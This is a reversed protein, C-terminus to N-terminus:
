KFLGDVFEAGRRWARDAASGAILERTSEALPKSTQGKNAELYTRDLQTGKLEQFSVENRTAWQAAIMEEGRERQEGNWEEPTGIQRYVSQQAESLNGVLESQFRTSIFDERTSFGATVQERTNAGASVGPGGVGPRGLGLAGGVSVDTISASDRSASGTYGEAALRSTYAGAIAVVERQDLRGTLDGVISSLTTEALGPRMSNPDTIQLSESYVQENGRREVDGVQTDDGIRTRRGETQSTVNGTAVSSVFDAQAADARGTAPDITMRLFGQGGERLEALERPGMAGSREMFDALTARNQDTVALGVQGSQYEAMDLRQQVDRPNLGLQEALRSGINARALNETEQNIAVAETTARINGPNLSEIADGRALHQSRAVEEATVLPQVGDGFADVARLTGEAQAGRFLGEAQGARTGIDQGFRNTMTVASEVRSRTEVGAATYLDGKDEMRLAADGANAQVGRAAAGATFNARGFTNDAETRRSFTEMGGMAAGTEANSARFSEPAVGAAGAAYQTGSVNGLTDAASYRGADGLVAGAMRGGTITDDIFAGAEATQRIQGMGSAMSGQRFGSSAQGMTGAVGMMQQQLGATQEPQLMQRGANDGAQEINGQWQQGLGTLAYGGFRFLGFALVSAMALATSRSKGFVGLAQVSGEPSLMIAEVGLQQRRIQDFADAAADYAMQVAIGDGIGWLALWAFLGFNLMLAAKILPTVIFLLTLPVLGLVVALMFARVKPIWQNMAEANGLGEAMVQRNVMTRMSRDVDSSNMANSVSQALLVSRLFPIESGASVNYLDTSDQLLSRCKALQAGDVVNFGATRCISETVETWTTADTLRANLGNTGAWAETCTRVEGRDDNPPHYVVSLAANTWQSFENILDTSGHMLRQRAGTGSNALAASGCTTYYNVLSQKLYWDNVGANMASQILTFNIAGANDSYPNASATDAIEIMGREFKNLAGAIFVILDPVGGVPEYANRVPDYIHVTGTSLIAGKFLALGLIVPFVFAIPNVQEGTMGKYGTSLAGFVVGAVAFIGAFVLFTNDSLMLALRRFASVTESFGNYTYFDSEVALAPGAVMLLVLAAPAKMREIMM